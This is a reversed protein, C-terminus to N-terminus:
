LRRQLCRGCVRVRVCAETKALEMFIRTAGALRASNQATKSDNGLLQSEAESAETDSGEDKIYKEGQARTCTLLKTTCTHLHTTNFVHPTTTCGM